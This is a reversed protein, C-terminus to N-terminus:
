LRPKALVKPADWAQAGQVAVKRQFVKTGCTAYLLDGHLALNAPFREGAPPPVILHVRGPLDCIQVGMATAVLLWGDESVAMGDAYSKTDVAAPPLHVHYYPQIAALTGDERRQGSWVYRGGYDAALVLSQDASLVVGNVGNYGAGAVKAEEGPVIVWIQKTRPESFYVTGDAAVVVDNPRVDTVVVTEEGTEIDWSILSPPQRRCGYLTKGDPAFALGNTQGTNEQFLSVEGGAAVKWVKSGELDTFFLEGARNIAPGETFLHGESVLEWDEGELLFKGPNSMTNIKQFSFHRQSS